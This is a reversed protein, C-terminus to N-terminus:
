PGNRERKTEDHLDGGVRPGLVLKHSQRLIATFTFEDVSFDDHARGTVAVFADDGRDKGGHERVRGLM